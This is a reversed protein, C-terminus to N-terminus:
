HAAEEASEANACKGCVGHAVLDIRDVQVGMSAQLRAIMDSNELDVFFDLVRRCHPCVFHGHPDTKGDFREQGGVTGVSAILGEEKFIGINRYVTGLSLDPYVAKLAQHVWEATPHCDTSRITELIAERKKSFNRNKMFVESVALVLITGLKTRNYM